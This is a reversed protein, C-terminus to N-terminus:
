GTRQTQRQPRQILQIMSLGDIPADKAFHIQGVHAAIDMKTVGMENRACACVTPKCDPKVPTPLEGFRDVIEEQINLTAEGAANALLRKGPNLRENVSGCYEDPLLAPTHLRDRRHHGHHPYIPNKAASLSKIAANLM